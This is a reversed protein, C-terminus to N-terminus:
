ARVSVFVKVGTAEASDSSAAEGSKKKIEIGHRKEALEIMTKYFDLEMQKRGLAAELEKNRRELDSMKKTMSDKEVIFLTGKKLSRSYKYIWRYVTERSRIGYARCAGMVTLEGSEIQRVIHLRIDESYERRDRIEVKKSM